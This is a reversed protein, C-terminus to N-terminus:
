KFYVTVKDGVGPIFAMNITVGDMGFVYDNGLGVEMLLGNLFVLPVTGVAPERPLRPMHIGDGYFTYILVIDISQDPNRGAITAGTTVYTVDFYEDPSMVKNLRLKTLEAMLYYQTDLATLQLRKARRTFQTVQLEVTGILSADVPSINWMALHDNVDAQVSVWFSGDPDNSVFVEFGASGTYGPFSNPHNQMWEQIFLADNYAILNFTSPDRLTLTWNAAQQGSSENRREVGLLMGSVPNHSIATADPFQLPDRTYGTAPGAVLHGIQVTNYGPSPGVFCDTGDFTYGYATDKVVYEHAGFSYLRSQPVVERAQSTSQWELMLSGPGTNDKHEIKIDTKVGAVLAATGSFVTPGHNTDDDIILNGDVWVRVGDQSTAYFTYTEQYKAKVQGTLRVSWVSGTPPVPLAAITTQDYNVDAFVVVDILDTFDNVNYVEARLGDGPGTLTDFPATVGSTDWLFGNLDVFARSFHNFAQVVGNRSLIVPPNEHPGIPSPFLVGYQLPLLFGDLSDEYFLRETVTRGVLIDPTPPVPTPPIPMANPNFSGPSGGSAGASSIPGSASIGGSVSVDGEISVVDSKLSVGGHSDVRVENGDKSRIYASGTIADIGIRTEGEETDGRIDLTGDAANLDLSLRTKDDVKSVISVRESDKKAFLRLKNGAADTVEIQAMSALMDDRSIGDGEDVRNLVRHDANDKNKDDTVPAEMQISQGARDIVALYETEDRDEFVLTHGKPTKFVYNEPALNARRQADEPIEPGPKTHWPTDPDPSMSIKGKPLSNVRGMKDGEGPIAFWTGIVVPLAPDGSEFMVYVTSGVPPVAVVGFGGGGGFPAMLTAWPLAETSVTDKTRHLYPIRVKVRNQMLPDNVYEVIGRYIGSQSGGTGYKQTTEGRKIM